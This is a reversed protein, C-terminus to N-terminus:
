NGMTILWDIVKGNRRLCVGMAGRHALWAQADTSFSWLEDGAQMRAKIALWQPYLYGFPLDEPAAIEGPWPSGSLADELFLSTQTEPAEDGEPITQWCAPGSPLNDREAQEISLCELLCYTFDPNHRESRQESLASKNESVNSFRM